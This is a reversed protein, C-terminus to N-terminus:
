NLPLVPTKPVEPRPELGRLASARTAWDTSATSKFDALHPNSDWRPCELFYSLQYLVPRFIRRDTTRNWGKEYVSSYSLQNSHKASIWTTM